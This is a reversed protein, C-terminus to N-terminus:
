QNYLSRVQYKIGSRFYGLFTNSECNQLERYQVPGGGLFDDLQTSFIALAGSEDQSCEDGVPFLCNYDFWGIRTKKKIVCISLSRTQVIAKLYKVDVSSYCKLKQNGSDPSSAEVVYVVDAAQIRSYGDSPM